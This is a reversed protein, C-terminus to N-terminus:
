GGAQPKSTKVISGNFTLTGYNVWYLTTADTAIAFPTAQGYAITVPAGGALPAMMVTGSGPNTWYIGSADVALGRPYSQHSAVTTTAGGGVPVSLVTGNSVSNTWYVTQGFVVVTGPTGATGAVLPV